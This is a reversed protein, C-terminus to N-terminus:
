KGGETVTVSLSVLDIGGRFRQQAAVVGACVAVLVLSSTIIARRHPFTKM